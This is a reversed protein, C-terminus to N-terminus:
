AATAPRRTRAEALLFLVPHSTPKRCITFITFIPLASMSVAPSHFLHRPKSHERAASATLALYVPGEQRMSWPWAALNLSFRYM